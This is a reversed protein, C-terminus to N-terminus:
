LSAAMVQRKHFGSTTALRKGASLRALVSHARGSRSRNVGRVHGTFGVEPARAANKAKETEPEWYRQCALSEPKLRKSVTRLSGVINM